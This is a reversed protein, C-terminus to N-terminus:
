RASKMALLSRPMMLYDFNLSLSLAAPAVIQTGVGQSQNHCECSLRIASGSTPHGMRQLRMAFPPNNADCAFRMLDEVIWFKCAGRLLLMSDGLLSGLAPAGYRSKSIHANAGPAFREGEVGCYCNTTVSGDQRSECSSYPPRAELMRIRPHGCRSDSSHAKWGARM